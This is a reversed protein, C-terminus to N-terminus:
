DYSKKKCKVEESLIKYPSPEKFIEIKLNTQSTNIFKVLVEKLWDLVLSEAVGHDVIIFNFGEELSDKATHYKVDSTILTNIGLTKLEDKLFAGSGGCVGFAKIPTELDGVVMVWSKLAKGIKKALDQLKISKKLYVVRGLGFVKQNKEQEYIFRDGKLNLAKLFAESVGEAIKDLPTHWSILNIEKQILRYILRGKLDEKIISNLPKFIFPHHSIILNLRNKIAYDIAKETLDVVLLVGVVNAEFSGVQLGNNDQPEAIYIPAIQNLFNYFDKTKLSM